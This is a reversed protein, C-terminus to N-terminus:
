YVMGISVVKNIGATHDKYDFHTVEIGEAFFHGQISDTIRRQDLIYLQLEKETFIMYAYFVSSYEIDSGRLNLFGSFHDSQMFHVKKKQLQM